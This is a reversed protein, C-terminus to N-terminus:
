FEFCAMVKFSPSKELYTNAFNQTEYILSLGERTVLRVLTTRWNFILSILLGGADWHGLSETMNVHDNRM